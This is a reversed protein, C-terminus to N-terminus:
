PLEGGLRASWNTPINEMEGSTPFGPLRPPDPKTTTANQIARLEGVDVPHGSSTKPAM